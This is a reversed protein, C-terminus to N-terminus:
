RHIFRNIYEKVNFKQRCGNYSMFRIKGFIEREGWARDHLGGISWAIGTYGNPDRGDLEYKDNLYIATKLADEPCETWELIKKAWYMRMYGHMKGASVMQMQSANWLEDHTLANEFEYLSYIHERQDTRHEDLTKKAWQPFGDFSDYSQNYYCYNDSLERRIILEELFSETSNIQGTFRESNLAVRQASIQGFHLYPSLESQAHFNPDNRKGAFSQLREELFSNLVNLAQSEGPLIKEIVSVSRDIKLRNLVESWNTSTHVFNYPMKEPLPFEELFEPLLRNIKPRITYAAFEQKESAIWCPVINHADVECFPIDIAAAIRNKWNRKIKLPDFDTVLTGAHTNQIFKVLTDEPRGILLYFPINFKHLTNEVEKLGNIMFDYHRINAGPFDDSLCFVVAFPLNYGIALKQAYILAWNDYVRQDRSMWYIVQGNQKVKNNLERVRKINM